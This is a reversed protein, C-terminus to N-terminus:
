PSSTNKDPSHGCQTYYGNTSRTTRQWSWMTPWSEVMMLRSNTHRGIKIGTVRTNEYIQGGRQEFSNLLSLLYKRPHFHAQNDYRIATAADVPAPVDEVFTTDLGLRRSADVEKEVKERKKSTPVYTYASARTFECDINQDNVRSAMEDLATRNADAYLRAKEEGFTNILYDYILGHAVTVKATTHGTTQRAVQNAELLAVDHGEEALFTATSIGAIGAGVVAVDTEITETM